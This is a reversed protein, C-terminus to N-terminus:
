KARSSKILRGVGMIENQGMQPNHYEAVLAMERDYDIFCVGILREHAIRQSLQLMHLWRFYVSRESLTEHFKIM